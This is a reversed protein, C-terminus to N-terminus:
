FPWIPAICLVFIAVLAIIVLKRSTSLNSVDDLPGPHEGLSLFLALIAFTYYGFVLLLLIAAASLISRARPGLSGRAAHGGDFMGMPILNLMTVIMGLWGAIAVPHLTIILWPKNTPNPPPTILLTALLDYLLPIPFTGPPPEDVWNLSSMQIGIITVIVTVIFGVIPGSSGLDFLADKNPALSKQQIVAGITGFGIPPPPGPIFYPATAEIGRRNAVIKHGMEHAGFIAMIAVTFTVAGVIANAMYGEEVLGISLLYGTLMVTGITALFLVVNIMPRSPKVPPKRMVQLVIKEGRKRLIPAFGIPDLRKILRLFAEKSDQRLKVYFTPTEYEIFSDEVDFEQEVIIRVQEFQAFFPEFSSDTSSVDSM